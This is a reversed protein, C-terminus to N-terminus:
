KRMETYRIADEESERIRMSVKYRKGDLKIYVVKKGINSSEEKVKM